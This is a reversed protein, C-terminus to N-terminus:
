GLPTLRGPAPRALAVVVILVGLAVIAAFVMRTWTASEIVIPQPADFGAQVWSPVGQGSADIALDFSLQPAAADIAIKTLWGDRPIWEMGRDSRLDDLLSQSAAQSNDLRM